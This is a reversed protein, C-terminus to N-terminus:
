PVPVNLSKFSARRITTHLVNSEGPRRITLELGTGTFGRITEVAQGLPVGLLSKRNVEVILDGSKLGAAEAPSGPTVGRVLPYGNTSDTALIAGIGGRVIAKAELLVNSVTQHVPVATRGGWGRLAAWGFLLLCLLGGFLLIWRGGPNLRASM